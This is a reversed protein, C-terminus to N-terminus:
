LSAAQQGLLALEEKFRHKTSAALGPKKIKNEIEEIENLVRLYEGNEDQIIKDAMNNLRTLEYRYQLKNAENMPQNELFYTTDKIENFIKLLATTTEEERREELRNKDVRSKETANNYRQTVNSDENQAQEETSSEPLELRPQAQKHTDRFKQSRAAGLAKIKEMGETNQIEAFSCLLLGKETDEIMQYRLFTGLALHVINLPRALVTSLEDESYPVGREIYIYGYDNLEAALLILDIWICYLADGEPMARILLMKKNRRMGTLIKAWTIEAKGTKEPM